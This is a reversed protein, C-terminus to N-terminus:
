ALNNCGNLYGFLFTVILDVALVILMFAIGPFADMIRWYLLIILDVSFLGLM